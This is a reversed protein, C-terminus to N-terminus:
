ENTDLNMVKTGKPFEFDFRGEIADAKQEWKHVAATWIRVPKEDKSLATCTWRCPASGVRDFEAYEIEVNNRGPLRMRKPLYGRKTDVWVVTTGFRKDRICLEDEMQSAADLVIDFGGKAIANFLRTRSPEAFLFLSIHAVDNAYPAPADSATRRITGSDSHEQGAM